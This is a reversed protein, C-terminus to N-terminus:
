RTSVSLGHGVPLPLHGGVQWDGDPDDLVFITDYWQQGSGAGGAVILVDRSVGAFSGSRGAQNPLPPLARWRLGEPAGARAAVTPSVLLVLFLVVTPGRRM